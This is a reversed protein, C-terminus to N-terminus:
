PLVPAWSRAAFVEAASDMAQAETASLQKSVSSRTSVTLAGGSMDLSGYERWGTTATATAPNPAPNGGIGDAWGRGVIHTDMKCGIFAINDEWSGTAARALYSSANAGSAVKVGAPGDAYTLSSNLFVFGKGGAYTRAQLIYGGTGNEYGSATSPYQSDGIMEIVSNEFLSAYNNGWIFDVNGSIKTDYFWNYGQLQLTDQESYFNANKAIMRHATTATGNSKFILAEAQNSYKSSRIHSNKLTLTDLVLLDANEALLVARGGGSTPTGSAGGGTGTNLSEHNDYQLVVGTRSEGKITVNARNYLYMLETYTGNKVSIIPNTVSTNTMVHNLAGQVSRYDATTGDDDVTITTLTAAPAAAKTTFTWGAAKGLGAFAKGSLTAGPFVTDAIGVYYETGYALKGSHPTITVKNGSIQIPSASVGRRSSTAIGITDTEGSLNIRDVLSDDSKKFIRITGSTGLTPATDFTLTLKDDTYATTSGIAPYVASSLSNYTATSDVYKPAITAVITKSLTTDSGSSFKINASGAALPSLTVTTATGTATGKTVKVAAPNDSVVTFDDVTGDAKAANVTVTYDADGADAAYTLATPSVSFLVPKDAPDGVKIDDIYFSKNNTFLGFKGSTFATDTVTGLNEGDMYITVSSGSIELRVNYWLSDQSIARKTQKGRTITGAKM